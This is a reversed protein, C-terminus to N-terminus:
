PVDRNGAFTPRSSLSASSGPLCVSAFRFSSDGIKANRPSRNTRRSADSCYVIAPPTTRSGSLSRFFRTVLLFAFQQHSPSRGRIIDIKTNAGFNSQASKHRYLTDKASRVEAAGLDSFGQQAQLAKLFNANM